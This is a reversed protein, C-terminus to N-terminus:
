SLLRVIVQQIEFLHIEIVVAVADSMKRHVVPQLLVITTMTTVTMPAGVTSGHKRVCVGAAVKMRDVLGTRDLPRLRAVAITELNRANSEKNVRNQVGHEAAQPNRLVNSHRVIMALDLQHPVNRRSQAGTRTRKLAEIWEDKRQQLPYPHHKNPTSGEDIMADTTADIMENIMEDITEAIMGAIKEAITEAIMEAIMETHNITERNRVGRKM